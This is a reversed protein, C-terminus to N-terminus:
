DDGSDEGLVRHKEGTTTDCYISYVTWFTM